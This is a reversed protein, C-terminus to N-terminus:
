CCGTKNLFLCMWAPLRFVATFVYNVGRFFCISNRLSNFCLCRVELIGLAFVSLSFTVSLFFFFCFLLIVCCLTHLLRHSEWLGCKATSTREWGLPESTGSRCRVAVLNDPAAYRPPSVPFGRFLCLHCRYLTMILHKLTGILDRLLENLSAWLQDNDAGTVAPDYVGRWFLLGDLNLSFFGRSFPKHFEWKNMKLAIELDVRRSSSPLVNAKNVLVKIICKMINSSIWDTVQCPQMSVAKLVKIYFACLTDTDNCIAAWRQMHDDTM